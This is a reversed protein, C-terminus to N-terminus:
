RLVREKNVSVMRARGETRQADLTSGSCPPLTTQDFSTFPYEVGGHLPYANPRKEHGIDQTGPTISALSM